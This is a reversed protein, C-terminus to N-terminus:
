GSSRIPMSKTKHLGVVCYPFVSLLSVELLLFFLAFNILHLRVRTVHEALEVVDDVVWVLFFASVDYFFDDPIHCRPIAEGM